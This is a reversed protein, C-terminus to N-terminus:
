WSTQWLQKGDTITDCHYWAATRRLSLSDIPHISEVGVDGRTSPPSSGDRGGSRYSSGIIEFSWISWVRVFDIPLYLIPVGQSKSRARIADADNIVPSV